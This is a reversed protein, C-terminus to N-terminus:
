HDKACLESMAVVGRHIKSLAGFMPTAGVVVVMVEWHMPLPNPATPLSRDAPCLFIAVDYCVRCDDELLLSATRFTTSLQPSAPMSNADAEMGATARPSSIPQLDSPQCRPASSPESTNHATVVKKCHACVGPRRLSPLFGSCTPM